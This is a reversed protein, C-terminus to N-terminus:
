PDLPGFDVDRLRGAEVPLVRVEDVEGARVRVRWLGAPVYAIEWSGDAASIATPLVVARTDEPVAHIWAGEIPDDDVDRLVGRLATCQLELVLEGAGANAGHSLPMEALAPELGALTNPALAVVRYEGHALGPLAFRGFADTVVRRRLLGSLPPTEAAPDLVVECGAVPCGAAPVLRGALDSREIVPLTELPPRAPGFRLEVPDSAPVDVAVEIPEWGFAAIAVDHRGEPLGALEFAGDPTTYAWIPRDLAVILVLAEHVPEGTDSTVVGRLAHAGGPPELPGLEVDDLPAFEEAGPLSPRLWHGIALVLPVGVLMLLTFAIRLRRM